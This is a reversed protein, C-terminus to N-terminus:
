NMVFYDCFTPVLFPIEEFEIEVLELYLTSEIERIFNDVFNLSQDQSVIPLLNFREMADTMILKYKTLSIEVRLNQLRDDILQMTYNIYGLEFITQESLVSEEQKM